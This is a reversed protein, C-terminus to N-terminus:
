HNQGGRARWSPRKSGYQATKLAEQARNLDDQAIKPGGQVTDFSEQGTKPGDQFSKTGGQPSRPQKLASTQQRPAMKLGFRAGSLLVLPPPKRPPARCPPPDARSFM